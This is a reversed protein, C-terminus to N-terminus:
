AREALEVAQRVDDDTRGDRELLLRALALMSGSSRPETAVLQKWAAIAEDDHGASGLATALNALASRSKTCAARGCARHEPQSADPLVGISECGDHFM